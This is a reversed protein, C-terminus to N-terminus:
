HRVPRGRGHWRDRAVDNALCLAVWVEGADVGSELAEEATLGGMADLVLDRVLVRGLTAGFEEDVAFRFESAKM